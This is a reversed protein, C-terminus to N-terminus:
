EGRKAYDILIVFRRMIRITNDRREVVIYDAGDPETIRGKLSRVGLDPDQYKVIDEVDM